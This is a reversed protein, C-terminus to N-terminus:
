SYVYAARGTTGDFLLLQDSAYRVGVDDGLKLDQVDATKLKILDGPPTILTVIAYKGFSEISYVTTAIASQDDGRHLTLGNPRLGLFAARGKIAKASAALAPPLTMTMSRCHFDIRGQGDQLEGPLINMPPDGFLRAVKVSAPRLWIDEPTGIQEIRGAILVAIRDGVSLGELGDPTSWITPHPRANLIQRIEGRLKHRLKADLHSIPEDLLLANPNQILARALATRQKQGGSLESPLRDSLHAIELVALLQEIHQGATPPLGGKARALLPSRVNDGVSLHPYLAYSEFMMAVRRDGPPMATMDTGNMYCQGSSPTELGAIIRCLTTKGAGSPGVLALVEGPAVTLDIDHLVETQDFTKSVNLLQLGDAATKCSKLPATM